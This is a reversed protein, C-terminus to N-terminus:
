GVNQELANTKEQLIQEIEIFEDINDCITNLPAFNFSIFVKKDKDIEIKDIIRFLYSKNIEELELFENILKDLKSEDHKEKINEQGQLNQLQDTFIKKREEIATREKVFRESIRIFDVESLIGGFNIMM